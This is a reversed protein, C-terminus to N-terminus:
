KASYWDIEYHVTGNKSVTGKLLGRAPVPTKKDDDQFKIALPPAVVIQGDCDGKSIGNIGYFAGQSTHFHAAFVCKMKPRVQDAWMKDIQSNLNWPPPGESEFPDPLPPIHTFILHLKGPKDKVEKKLRVMEAYQHNLRDKVDGYKCWLTQVLSNPFVPANPLTIPTWKKDKVEKNKIEDPVPKPPRTFGIRCPISNKFTASNLGHLSIGDIEVSTKTLDVVKRPIRKELEAVFSQYRGIDKPDENLLDNNGPVFLIHRVPLGCLKKAFYDVAQREWYPGTMELGLDGTFVIFKLGEIAKIKGLAWDLAREDDQWLKHVPKDNLARPKGEDFLHVDSIQVFTASSTDRQCCSSMLIATLALLMCVGWSQRKSQRRRWIGRM